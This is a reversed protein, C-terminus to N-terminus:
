EVLHKNRLVLRASAGTYSSQTGVAATGSTITFRNMEVQKVRFSYGTPSVAWGQKDYFNFFDQTTPYTVGTLLTLTSGGATRTFTGAPSNYTYTYNVTTGDPMQLMVQSNSFAPLDTAWHVDKSFMQLARRSQAELQQQNSYRILNRGLFTYSSLIAAIVVMAISAAVVLEM